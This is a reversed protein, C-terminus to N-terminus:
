YRGSCTEYLEAAQLRITDSVIAVARQDIYLIHLEKAADGTQETRMSAVNRVNILETDYSTDENKAVLICRRLVIKVSSIDILSVKAKSTNETKTHSEGSGCGSLLLVSLGIAVISRSRM